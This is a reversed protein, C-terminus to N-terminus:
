IREWKSYAKRDAVLEVEMASYKEFYEDVVGEVQESFQWRALTTKKDKLLYLFRLHKSGRLRQFIGNHHYPKYYGRNLGYV